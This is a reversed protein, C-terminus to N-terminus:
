MRSYPSVNSGNHHISNKEYHYLHTLDEKIVLIVQYTNVKGM